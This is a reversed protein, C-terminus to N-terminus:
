NCFANISKEGIKPLCICPYNKVIFKCRSCDCDHDNIIGCAQLFAYVTISGLFKFGRKKLDKFIDDSLANCVPIHGKGHQEYIITKYDSWRWIYKDFSGFEECIMCFCRANNIIANIKRRSKIMGETTLIREIDDNTYKAIEEFNFNHFCNRFINRKNIITNWNLGCQLVELMLAEFLKYDDHLPVGWEEDHYKLNADSTNKWDCYSM